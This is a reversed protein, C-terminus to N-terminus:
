DLKNKKKQIKEKKILQKLTKLKKRHTLKNNMSLKHWCTSNYCKKQTELTLNSKRKRDKKILHKLSKKCILLTENDTYNIEGKVDCNEGHKARKVKANNIRTINDFVGGM